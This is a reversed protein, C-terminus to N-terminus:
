FPRLTQTFTHPTNVTYGDLALAALCLALGFWSGDVGMSMVSFTGGEGGGKGNGAEGAQWAMFISIGGTILAVQVYERAEYTAKNILIRALMVPILKCSKALSQAPYSMYSLAWNSLLMAGIYSLSLRTYATLPVTAPPPRTYAIGALRFTSPSPLTLM